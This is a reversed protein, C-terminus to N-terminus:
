GKNDIIGEEGIGVPGIGVGVDVHVDLGYDVDVYAGAILNKPNPEDEDVGCDEDDKCDDDGGDDVLGVLQILLHINRLILSNILLVIDGEELINILVPVGKDTLLIM